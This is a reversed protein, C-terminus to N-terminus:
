KNKFIMQYYALCVLLPHSCDVVHKKNNYTIKTFYDYNPKIDDVKVIIPLDGKKNQSSVEKVSKELEDKGINLEFIFFFNPKGGETLDRTLGVLNNEISLNYDLDGVNKLLSKRVANILGDTTFEDHENVAKYYDMSSSVTPGLKNKSISKKRNRKFVLCYNDKTILLGNIGVHNSLKSKNLDTLINDFEYMERITPISSNFKYDMARNTVMSDFYTTRSTDITLKNDEVKYDDIRVKLSNTLTSTKHALLLEDYHKQIFYNPEYFKNPNDNITLKATKDLNEYISIVPIYLKNQKYAEYVKLCKDKKSSLDINEVYLLKVKDNKLLYKNYDDIIEHYNDEIKFAEELRLELLKNIYVILITIGGTLSITTATKFEFFDSISVDEKQIFLKGVIFFIIVIALVFISKSIKSNLIKYLMKSKKNKM